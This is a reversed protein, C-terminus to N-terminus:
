RRYQQTENATAPNYQSVESAPVAYFTNKSDVFDDIKSFIGVVTMKGNKKEIVPAGSYGATGNVNLQLCKSFGEDEKEPVTLHSVTQYEWINGHNTKPFGFIRIESDDEDSMSILYEETALELDGCRDSKIFAFDGLEVDKRSYLPYIIRWPLQEEGIHAIIDHSRNFSFQDSSFEYICSDEDLVQCRSILRYLTDAQELQSKEALVAWRVDKPLDAMVVDDAWDTYDVWPEVCHRATVCLSDHTFFCTGISLSDLAYSDVTHYVGDADAETHQQLIIESVTIKYVSSRVLATNKGTFHNQNKSFMPYGMCVVLVLLLSCCWLATQKWSRKQSRLLLGQGDVYNDDDFLNFVFTNGEVSIVDGDSLNAIAHVEEDNLMVRYFDSKRIIMWGSGAANRVITCFSQPLLEESCPLLIDASPQQGITLPASANFLRQGSHLRGKSSKVTIGYYKM